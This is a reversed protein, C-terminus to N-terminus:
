KVKRLLKAKGELLYEKTNSHNLEYETPNWYRDADFYMNSVKTATNPLLKSTSVFINGDAEVEYIDIPNENEYYFRLSNDKLIKYWRNLGEEDTLFMSKLRSPKEPYKNRRVEELMMERNLTSSLSIYESVMQLLQLQNQRSYKEFNAQYIIEDFRKYKKINKGDELTKVETFSSSIDYLSEKFFNDEKGFEIINGEKFLDDYKNERHIHYLKM